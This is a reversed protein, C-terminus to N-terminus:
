EGKKEAPLNGAILLAAEGIWFCLIDSRGGILYAAISGIIGILSAVFIRM